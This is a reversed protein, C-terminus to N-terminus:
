LKKSQMMIKKPILPNRKLIKMVFSYINEPFMLLEPEMLVKSNITYKGVM